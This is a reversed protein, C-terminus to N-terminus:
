EDGQYRINAFELMETTIDIAEDTYGVNQLQTNSIIINYGGQQAYAKIHGKLQNIVGITMKQDDEQAKQTINQKFEYYSQQLIYFQQQDKIWKEQNGNISDIKIENYLNKLTMELSDTQESWNDMKHNYKETADKMGQYDYVLEEMQIIGIKYSSTGMKEIILYGVICICLILAIHGTNKIM